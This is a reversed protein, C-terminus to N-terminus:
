AWQQVVQVPLIMLSTVFAVLEVLLHLLGVCRNRTRMGLPSPTLILPLHLQPLVLAFQAQRAILHPMAQPEDQITRTVRALLERLQESSLGNTVVPIAEIDQHVVQIQHYLQRLQHQLAVPHAEM